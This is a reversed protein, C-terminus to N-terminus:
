WCIFYNKKKKSFDIKVKSTSQPVIKIKSDNADIPLNKLFQTKTWISNFILKDAQAFIKLRENKTESGQMQLPNNHFFIIKKTNKLNNIYKFYHPRNHIELIDFKRNSLKNLFNEVYIKSYSLYFKKKFNLNEYNESLPKFNTSGFININSKFKSLKNISNVFISVAGTEKKSFNEKYPLLIAIKM